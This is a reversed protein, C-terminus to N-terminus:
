RFGLLTRQSTWNGQLQATLRMLKMASLGLPQRGNVIAAVIDPALWALRLLIYIYPAGIREERAIDHVKLTPDKRLRDQIDHARAVLRVLSMDVHATTAPDDVLLKVDKGHRHRRAAADLTFFDDPDTEMVPALSPLDAVSSTLLTSLRFRSIEISLRDSHVTVRCVLTTVISKIQEADQQDIDSCIQQAREM